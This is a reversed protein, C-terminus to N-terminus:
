ELDMATLRTSNKVTLHDSFLYKQMITSVETHYASPHKKLLM